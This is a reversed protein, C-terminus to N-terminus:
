TVSVYLFYYCYHVYTNGRKLMLSPDPFILRRHPRRVKRKQPPNTLRSFLKSDGDYTLAPPAAAQQASSSTSRSRRPSAAPKPQATAAAPPPAAATVASLGSNARPIM